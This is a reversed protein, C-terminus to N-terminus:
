FDAVEKFVLIIYKLASSLYLEPMPSTVTERCPSLLFKQFKPPKQIM